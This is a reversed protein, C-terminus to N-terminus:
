PSLRQKIWNAESIVYRIRDHLGSARGQVFEVHHPLLKYGGWYAPREPEQGEWAETIARLKEALISPDHLIESQASALIILRNQRPLNNFVKDAAPADLKIIDGSIRVQRDLTMWYMVMTAMPNDALQHAKNSKYNTFFQFGEEDYSNLLMIRGDPMGSADVTCLTMIGPMIIGATNADKWWLDFQAMPEHAAHNEDFITDRIADPTQM